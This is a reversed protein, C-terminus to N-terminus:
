GQQFQGAFALLAATVAVNLSEVGNAMPIALMDTCLKSVDRSVGETENGLVFVAPKDSLPQFLSTKAHSSLGYIAMGNDKLAPLAETLSECHFIPAKFLTGASAKIVLPSLAACGKRPLIVGAINSAAASRIIMGLNQPNHIGDLALLRTGPAVSELNFERIPRYTALELDAAVGQDQKGNKSIRSLGQRDHWAIEIGQQEALQCIENIIGDRKNSEALHLKSCQVSPMQLAELVPKRGYITLQRALREKKALYEKSDSRPATKSM